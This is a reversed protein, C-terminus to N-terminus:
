SDEQDNSPRSVPTGADFGFDFHTTPASLLEKVEEARVGRKELLARVKALARQIRRYLPKPEVKLTRAIEAVTMAGEFHLKCLLRDTEELDRIGSRVIAGVKRARGARDSEFAAAQVTEADEGVREAACEIEVTRPRRVRDPLSRAIKEVEARTLDPWRRLLAPLAEDITRGDRYLMAEITVGREGQRKAEASAHWKGWQANRYDLLLRHIVVSMFGAFSSRRDHQRIIAYENDILKLQVDAAFDEAEDERLGARRCSFRLIKEITKLEALFLREAADRDLADTMDVVSPTGDSPQDM